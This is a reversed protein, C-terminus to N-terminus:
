PFQYRYLEDPTLVFLSSHSWALVPPGSYLGPLQLRALLTLSPSGRAISVLSLVTANTAGTSGLVFSFIILADDQGPHACRQYRAV